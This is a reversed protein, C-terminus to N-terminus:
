GQDQGLDRYYRFGTVPRVANSTTVTNTPRTSAPAQTNAPNANAAQVSTERNTDQIPSTRSTETEAIETASNDEKSIVLASSGQTTENVEPGQPGPMRLLKLKQKWTGDVFVSECQNVRYIGGFPSEKGAVSFDYLGTTDNIDAPTRFTLYIYVNGSEYNMTGDSTIQSVPSPTEAFYNAMGSDVLWYPDGLIELDVSVMDASNGSIFAHQFNEAVAQETTKDGSGGKMSKLLKPDRKPRARGLQAGQAAPAQGRGTEATSNLRESLNQDQNGTKAGENEPSPNIGSYFLNNINIDFKLIDVNQGTYIYQYEKTIQKMLEAYGVPASTPNAFISQHIFYPVVRYTIKKAYDGVIPDYKLLEIQVDLKFWKIYGEATPKDTIAKKAYESSLIVQNIIATLSQGQGFQFARTKPDITMGERKVIGTKEDIQDGARKFLANGGSRSDFGLSATGIENIPLNQDDAYNVQSGAISKQNLDGPKVSARNIKSADGASSFWQGSLKPFQISYRDPVGIKGEKVLKEENRNLVAVLSNESTSLVEVVDGKGGGSVKIDNYTTNIADSFGQHNYPIAEVKYTSGGENVSFKMSTLKMVFFKPKISKIVRGLEDYGQIDMKLVYPTNDLYTAYGAKVAANQMSQLLLGMSYPEYIDFSFKVANSNGTKQNTGVLCNMQFNNVFYEPTGFFTKTRYKDARGGSSFIISSSQKQGTTEDTFFDDVFSFDATRYSSPNNFQQPTLVALSWLVNTSAFQEMPNRVVSPINKVATGATTKTNPLLSSIGGLKLLDTAKPLTFNTIINAVGSNITSQTAGSLIGTGDPKTINAVAQGLNRILAV